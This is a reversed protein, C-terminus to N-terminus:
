ADTKGRTERELARAVGALLIDLGTEFIHQWQDKGFHPGASVVNPFDRKLVDFPVPSATTPGKSYGATEDLTAGIIYYGVLRFYHAADRDPLGAKRYCGIMRDLWALAVPTNMRHVSMFTFFAPHRLGMARYEFAAFRQGDIFSLEEPIPRMESVACDVLADMLHAKSPFHHYISMAECGLRQALKRTSFDALGEEEIVAFAAATIRERTLPERKRSPKKELAQSM